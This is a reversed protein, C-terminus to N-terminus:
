KKDITRMQAMVDKVTYDSPVAFLAPAPEDRKINVMRWTREGTRPDSRKTM